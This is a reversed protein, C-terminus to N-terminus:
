PLPPLSAPVLATPQLGHVLDRLQGATADELREPVALGGRFYGIREQLFLPGKLYGFLRLLVDADDESLTGGWLDGGVAHILIFCWSQLRGRVAFFLDHYAEVAQPTLGCAAAVEEFSQRALVRAELIGRALGLVLTDRVDPLSPLM